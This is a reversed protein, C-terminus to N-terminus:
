PPVLQLKAIRAVLCGPVSPQHLCDVNIARARPPLSTRGHAERAMARDFATASKRILYMGEM